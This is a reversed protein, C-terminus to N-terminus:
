QNLYQRAFEEVDLPSTRDLGLAELIQNHVVQRQSDLYHIATRDHQGSAMEKIYDLYDACMGDLHPTKLMWEQVGHDYRFRDWLSHMGLTICICVFIGALIYPTM